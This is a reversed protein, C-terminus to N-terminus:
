AGEQRADAFFDALPARRETSRDLVEGAVRDCRFIKRRGSAVCIAEIFLIGEEEYARRVDVTWDRRRGFGERYTFALHGQTLPEKDVRLYRVDAGERGAKRAGRALLFLYGLYLIVILAAAGIWILIEQKKQQQLSEEAAPQAPPVGVMNAISLFEERRISGAAGDRTTYFVDDGRFDYDRVVIQGGSSTTIIYLEEAGRSPIGFLLLSMLMVAAVSGYRMAKEEGGSIAVVPLNRKGPGHALGNRRGGGEAFM